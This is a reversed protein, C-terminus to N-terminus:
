KLASRIKNALANANLGYYDTLFSSDGAVGFSDPLGIKCLPTHNPIECLIEAVASGLGGIISHEEVTVILKGATSRAVISESDFPKLTHM